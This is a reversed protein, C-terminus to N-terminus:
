FTNFKRVHDLFLLAIAKRPLRRAASALLSDDSSQLRVIPAPDHQIVITLVDECHDVRTGHINAVAM